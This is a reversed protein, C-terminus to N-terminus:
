QRARFEDVEEETAFGIKGSLAGGAIRVREHVCELVDVFEVGALVRMKM